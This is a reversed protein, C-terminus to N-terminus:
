QKILRDSGGNDNNGDNGINGIDNEPGDAAIITCSEVFKFTFLILINATVQLANVSTYQAQNYSYSSNVVAL